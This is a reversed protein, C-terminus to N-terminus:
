PAQLIGHNKNTSNKEAVQFVIYYAGSCILTSYAHRVHDHIAAGGSPVQGCPRAKTAALAIASPVMDLGVTRMLMSPAVPQPLAAPLLLAAAAVSWPCIYRILESWVTCSTKIKTLVGHMRRFIRHSSSDQFIKPKSHFYVLGLGKRGNTHVYTVKNVSHEEWARLAAPRVPFRWAAPRLERKVPSPCAVPPSRHPWLSADPSPRRPWLRHAM